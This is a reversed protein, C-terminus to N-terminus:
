NSRGGVRQNLLRLAEELSKATAGPSSSAIPAAAHRSRQPDAGDPLPCVFLTKSADRAHDTLPKFAAAALSVKGDPQDEGSPGVVQARALDDAAQRAHTNGELYLGVYFQGQGCDQPRTSFYSKRPARALCHVRVSQGTWDAPVLFLCAFERVGELSARSSPKLKFFVGTGRHITGSALLLQRPPLRKYTEKTGAAHTKGGGASPSVQAKIIGYEVGFNGMLGANTSATNETHDVVEIEGAIDTDLETRPLFDVVTLPQEPSTIEILLEELDAERGSELRTSIRFRAEVIRRDPYKAVFGAPTVDRCEATYSMDFAVRPAAAEVRASLGASMLLCIASITLLSARRLSRRYM